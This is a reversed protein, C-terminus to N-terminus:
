KEQGPREWKFGSDKVAKFGADVALRDVVLVKQPVRALVAQILSKRSVIGTIAALAGLAIINAVLPTDFLHIAMATFPAKFVNKQTFAVDGILTENVILLGKPDLLKGFKELSEKSLVVLISTHMVKPYLIKEKSIIIEARSAGGRAEPGYSQSMVADKNDFISAAEALIKGALILGQGGSGTLAVEMRGSRVPKVPPEPSLKRFLKLINM